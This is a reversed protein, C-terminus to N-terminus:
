FCPRRSAPFWNGSSKSSGSKGSGVAQASRCCGEASSNGARQFYLEKRRVKLKRVRQERM